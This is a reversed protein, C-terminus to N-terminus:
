VILRNDSGYAVIGVKLSSLIAQSEARENAIEPVYANRTSEKIRNKSFALVTAAGLGSHHCCLSFRQRLPTM